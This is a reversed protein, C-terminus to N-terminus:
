KSLENCLRLCNSMMNIQDMVPRVSEHLKGGPTMFENQVEILLVATKRPVLGLGGRGLQPETGFNARLEKLKNKSLDLDGCVVLECLSEPLYELEMDSMHWNLVQGYRDDNPDDVFTPRDPREAGPNLHVIQAIVREAMQSGQRALFRLVSPRARRAAENLDKSTVAAKRLLRISSSTMIVHSLLEIDTLKDVNSMPVAPM